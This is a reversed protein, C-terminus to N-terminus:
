CGGIDSNPTRLRLWPIPPSLAAEKLIGTQKGLGLEVEVEVRREFTEVLM